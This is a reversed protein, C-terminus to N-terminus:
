ETSDDQIDYVDHKVYITFIQFEEAVDGIATVWILKSTARKYVLNPKAQMENFIM